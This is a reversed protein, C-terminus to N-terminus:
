AMARLELRFGALRLGLRIKLHVATGVTQPFRQSVQQCQLGHRFHQGPWLKKSALIEEILCCKDWGHMSVHKKILDITDKDAKEM